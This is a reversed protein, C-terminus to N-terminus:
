GPVEVSHFSNHAGSGQASTHRLRCMVGCCLACRITWHRLVALSEHGMLLELESNSDTPCSACFVDILELHVQEPPSRRNNKRRGHLLCGDPERLMDVVSSRVRTSFLEDLDTLLLWANRGWLSLLAHNGAAAQVAHTYWHKPVTGAM